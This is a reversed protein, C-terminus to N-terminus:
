VYKVCRDLELRKSKGSCGCKKMIYDTSYQIYARPPVDRTIPKYGKKLAMRTKM